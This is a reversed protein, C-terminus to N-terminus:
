PWDTVIVAVTACALPGMVGVPVTCNLTSPIATPDATVSLPPVAVYEVLERVVPVRFMVATYIGVEPLPKLALEEFVSAFVTLVALVVVVTWLLLEDSAEVTSSETVRVAVTDGIKGGLEALATTM